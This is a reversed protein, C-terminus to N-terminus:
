IELISEVKIKIDELWKLNKELKKIHKESNENNTKFSKLESFKGKLIDDLHDFELNFQKEIKWSIKNAFETAGQVKEDWSKEAPRFFERVLHSGDVFEVTKYKKRFYIPFKLLTFRIALEEGDEIETEEILESISFNDHRISGGMLKLPDIIQLGALNKIEIEETLSALKKKYGELLAKCTNRLNNEIHKELEEGFERELDKGFKELREIEHIIDEGSFKKGQSDDIQRTIRSQFKQKISEGLEKFEAIAEVVANGVDDKFKKLENVDYMKREILNIQNILNQSSASNTVIESKLKELFGVEDLKHIFTDVVNKIKATKAYKQVYQRIAAEISVVGTHILAETPNENDPGEYKSRTRELEENIEGRISAPLDGYSEFHFGKNQNLKSIKLKTEDIMEQDIDGGNILLRINLAPLAAAPFVNPNAVGHNKLYSRVRELFSSLDGDDSTRGDLKNVVFIFRDKSQKGGVSMSTAVRKLLANDDDAGFAGTMIYLVLAKSSTDLLENQVQRHRVDRSNNPGPTDILVLSIEDSSVFPINGLVEVSSVNEDSNLQDMESKSLNEYTRLIGGNKDYVKAKFRSDKNSCDKIKTIIATCAEQKSPMLKKGLMSNILTSKGASMTALVCVEFDSSKAHKFANLIQNDKLEDFQGKQIDSFVEDILAEKDAIEKAAIHKIKFVGEVADILVSELDEFDLITGHFDIEFETDNYEEILLQPFEEVWEQLRSDKISKEGLKSNQALQKGAVTIETELKYPNYKIFVKKM